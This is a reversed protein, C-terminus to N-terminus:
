RPNNRGARGVAGRNQQLAVIQRDLHALSHSDMQDTRIVMRVVQVAVGVLAIVVLVGLILTASDNLQVCDIATGLGLSSFATVWETSRLTTVHMFVPVMPIMAFLTGAYVGIHHLQAFFRVLTDIFHSTMDM